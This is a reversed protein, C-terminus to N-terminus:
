GRRGTSGGLTTKKKDGSMGYKWHQGFLNRLPGIGLQYWCTLSLVLSHGLVCRGTITTKNPLYHSGGVRGTAAVPPQAAVVPPQAAAPQTTVSPQAAVVPPQVQAAVPQAFVPPQVQAAIPQAAVVPQAAIPPQVQAALAPQADQVAVVPQAAVSQQAAILQAAIVPQAAISSQAALHPHAAIPPQAAVPTHAAIISQTVIPQPQAAAPTQPMMPSAAEPQLQAVCDEADEALLVPDIPLNLNDAAYFGDMVDLVSDMSKKRADNAAPM